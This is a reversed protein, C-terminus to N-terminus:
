AIFLYTLIACVGLVFAFLYLGVSGNQVIRGQTGIANTVKGLGFVFASITTEISDRFFSSLANVSKVFIFDYIEDVYYKNYLVKSFGGIAEDAEPVQSQKIYKSYAIVIGILGGVIAIGMLMYELSGFSHGESVGKSFVPALYNSLWSNGPLSILGGVTALVALIILPFTILSPSEHLHNKQDETGRFDKFFTLYLLRFIYFATM